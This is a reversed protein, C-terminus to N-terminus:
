KGNKTAFDALITDRVKLWQQPTFTTDEQNPGVTACTAIWADEVACDDRTGKSKNVSEWAEAMTCGPDAPVAESTETKKSKRAPPAKVAPTVAPATPEAAPASTTPPAAPATSTDAPTASKPPTPKAATAPKPAPKRGALWKSNAAAVTAADAQKITRDPSADPSDIWQVKLSTKGEYTDEEVRILVTKGVLSPLEQFDSGDWGTAIQLQEFNKLPGDGNFLVLFATIEDGYNWDVWGADALKLGELEAKDTVFRKVALLKGVWQPLGKKTEGYASEQITALFAGTRDISSM